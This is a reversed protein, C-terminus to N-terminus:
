FIPPDEGIYIYKPAGSLKTAKRNLIYYGKTMTKPKEFVEPEAIEAVPFIEQVKNSNSAAGGTWFSSIFLVITYSLVAWVLCFLWFPFPTYLSKNKGIGFEKWGGEPTFMSEPRMLLIVSVGALYLLGAIIFIGKGFM